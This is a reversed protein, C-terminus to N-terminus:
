PPPHEEEVGLEEALEEEVVEEVKTIGWPIMSHGERVAVVVVEKQGVPPEEEVALPGRREEVPEREM